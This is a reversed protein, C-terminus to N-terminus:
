RCQDCRMRRWQSHVEVHREFMGANMAFRLHKNRAQLWANLKEFRHFPAGTDDRLFLELRKADDVPIVTYTEAFCTASGILLVLAVLVRMLRSYLRDM